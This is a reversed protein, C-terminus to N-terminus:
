IMIYAFTDKNVDMEEDFDYFDYISESLLVLEEQYTQTWWYSDEEENSLIDQTIPFLEKAKDENELAMDIDRELQRLDEYSMFLDLGSDYGDMKNKVVWSHILDDNDFFALEIEEVDEINVWYRSLRKEYEKPDNEKLYHNHYLPFFSLENGAIQKGPVGKLVVLKSQSM